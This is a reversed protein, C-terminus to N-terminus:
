KASCCVMEVGALFVIDLMGVGGGGDLAVEDGIGAVLDDRHLVEIGLDRV